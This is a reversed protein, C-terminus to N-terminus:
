LYEDATEPKFRDAAIQFPVAAFWVAVALSTDVFAVPISLLFSAVPSLSMASSWRYVDAPIPRFMLGARHAHRFLVVEMGSVIAVTVAYVAISLPNEFFNGLLATPFPLFAVFLLYILNLWVLGQDMERLLSFFRHHAIWYRGIVLFSILFSVFSASNDGLADALAGVSVEDSLDPVEIGIVLLTMAIAFLGDSFNVVRAFEVGDRPYTSRRSSGSM